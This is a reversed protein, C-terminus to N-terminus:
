YDRYVDYARNPMLALDSQAKRLQWALEKKRQLDTEQKLEARLEAIKERATKAGRHAFRAELVEHVLQYGNM